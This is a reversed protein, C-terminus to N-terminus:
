GIREALEILVRQIDNAPVNRQSWGNQWEWLTATDEDSIEVVYKARLREAHKFQGKQSRGVYDTECRIGQSRLTNMVTFAHPTDTRVFFFQVSRHEAPIDTAALVIREIGSAFGAGPTPQGGIEQVLYDYRGGASVTAQAGLDDSVFEFATRTYYDLGRVLSADHEFPIGAAGLYTRVTDFHEQCADCLSYGIQPAQKLLPGLEPNKTDFVRLPSTQWKHRADEDLRSDNRKLWDELSALYAPRCTHDGVSNLVLRWRVGLANLLQAQITILEADIAPDPSGLAEVSIQWFERNRGKQPRAYRFMPAAMWTKVPQPERHLGHQVYARAVQATGEPRLTLSRGGQDTFSYMEKSVVDSADGSTRAFLETDEFTPTVIREYGYASLLQSAIWLVRGWPPWQSPLVDYAGTPNQFRPQSM